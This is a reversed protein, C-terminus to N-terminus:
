KTASQGNPRSEKEKELMEAYCDYLYQFHSDLPRCGGIGTYDAGRYKFKQSLKLAALLEQFSSFGNKQKVMEIFRARLDELHNGLCRDLSETNGYYYKSYPKQLREAIKVAALLEQYSNSM